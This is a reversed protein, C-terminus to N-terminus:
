LGFGMQEPMSAFTDGKLSTLDYAERYALRGERVARSVASGFRLGIRGRQNNWFNGGSGSEELQRGGWDKAKNEHYYEFFDDRSILSTDMARRAAVVTSVKFHRAVTQHPDSSHIADPWYTRLEDEPVLFEAAMLDCLQETEHDSRHLDEFKSVGPEGVFIHVLEHALTFIQATKYDANNIFILPAYDDVLAFGQFEEPDLKRRTNNGVIGNSVVLIGASEIHDRLTRLANTWTGEAAAWGGDLELVDNMGTAVRLPSDHRSFSGVFELPAAGEYMLEESMWMQRRQMLYVTELLNPSPRLAPTDSRTRFDTIPLRDDLPARLYLYGIPTYTHRALANVKAYTISGSAEWDAIREPKVKLKDALQAEDFGARERAWRLVQPRLTIPTNRGAM